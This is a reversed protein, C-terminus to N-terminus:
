ALGRSIFKFHTANTLSLSTLHRVVTYSIGKRKDDVIRLTIDDISTGAAYLVQLPLYQVIWAISCRAGSSPSVSPCLPVSNPKPIHDQGDRNGKRELCSARGTDILVVVNFMAKNVAKVDRLLRSQIKLPMRTLPVSM